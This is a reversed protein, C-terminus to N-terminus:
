TVGQSGNICYNYYNYPLTERGKETLFIIIPVDDKEM